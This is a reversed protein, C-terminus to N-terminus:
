SKWNEKILKQLVATAQQPDVRGETDMRMMQGVLFNLKGTKGALIEEMVNADLVSKAMDVYERNSLPTYWLGLRDVIAEPGTDVNQIGAEFLEALVKKATKGTIKKGILLHLLHALSTAKILCDGTDTIGLPNGENAEPHSLGGMEHLVWNGCLRGATSLDQDPILKMYDDVV